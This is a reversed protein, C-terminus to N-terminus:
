KTRMTFKELYNFLSKVDLGKLKIRTTEKAGLPLNFHYESVEIPSNDLYMIMNYSTQFIIRCYKRKPVFINGDIVLWKSNSVYKIVFEVADHGEYNRVM